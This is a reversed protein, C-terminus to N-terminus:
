IAPPNVLAMAATLLLIKCDTLLSWTRIYRVDASVTAAMAAVGQVEGRHGSIQALGTLGPRVRSRLDYDPALSGYYRDQALSHPQPGVLSMEGKLVNILQPLEDISSKRLFAGLATDGHETAGATRFKLSEFSRGGAGGRRQRVLVPGRSELRIALATMVLLPALFVLGCFAGAIDLARKSRSNIAM